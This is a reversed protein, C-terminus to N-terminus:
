RCRAGEALATRVYEKGDALTFALELAQNAGGGAHPLRLDIDLQLAAHQARHVRHHRRRHADFAAAPLYLHQPRHVGQPHREPHDRLAQRRCARSKLPWWTAQSCRCCAGNMTMSVSVQRASRRVPDEHGRGFRDGRRGQRRRRDRASPRQRLRPPHGPRVRRQRGPRRRRAGQSLVRQVRRRHLLGRVPPDDLGCRTCRRRRAACSLSSARCRTPTRCARSM